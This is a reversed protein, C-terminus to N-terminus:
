LLNVHEVFRVELRESVGNWFCKVFIYLVVM